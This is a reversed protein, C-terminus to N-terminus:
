RVPPTKPQDLKSPPTKRPSKPPLFNSPSKPAYSNPIPAELNLKPTANLTQPIDKFPSIGGLLAQPDRESALTLRSPVWGALYPRRGSCISPGCRLLPRSEATASVKGSTLLLGQRETGRCWRAQAIITLALWAFGNYDKSSWTSVSQLPNLSADRPAQYISFLRGPLSSAHRAAASTPLLDAGRGGHFTLPGLLRQTLHRQISRNCGM